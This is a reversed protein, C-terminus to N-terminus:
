NTEVTLGGDDSGDHSGDDPAPKLDEPGMASLLMDLKVLVYRLRVRVREWAESRQGEAQSLRLKLREKLWQLSHEGSPMFLGPDALRGLFEVVMEDDIETIKLEGKGEPLVQNLLWNATIEDRSAFDHLHELGDFFERM